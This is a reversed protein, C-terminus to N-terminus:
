GGAAARQPPLPLQLPRLSACPDDLVLEWPLGLTLVRLALLPGTPLVAVHHECPALERWWPEVRAAVQALSEGGTPAVHVPDGSWASLRQPDERQVLAWAKGTWRGHDTDTLRGDIRWQGGAITALQRALEHTRRLPPAWVTLGPLASPLGAHVAHAAPLDPVEPPADLRGVCLGRTATIAHRVVWLAGPDRPGPPSPTAAALNAPTDGPAATADGM